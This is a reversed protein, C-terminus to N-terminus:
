IDTKWPFVIIVLKQNQTKASCCIKQGKALFTYQTTVGFAVLICCPFTVKLNVSCNVGVLLLKTSITICHDRGIYNRLNERQKHSLLCENKNKNNNSNSNNILNNNNNNNNDNHFIAHTLTISIHVTKLFVEQGHCWKNSSNNRPNRNKSAERNLLARMCCESSM